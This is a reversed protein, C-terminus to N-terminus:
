MQNRNYGDRMKEKLIQVDLGYRQAMTKRENNSGYRLVGAIEREAQARWEHNHPEGEGEGWLSTVDKLVDELKADAKEKSKQKKIQSTSVIQWRSSLKKRAGTHEDYSPKVDEPSESEKDPIMEELPWGPATM